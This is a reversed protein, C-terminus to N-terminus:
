YDASQVIYPDVKFPGGCPVGGAATVLFLTIFHTGKLATFVNLLFFSPLGCLICDFRTLNDFDSM